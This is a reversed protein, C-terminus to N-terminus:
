GSLVSSAVASAPATSETLYIAVQAVDAREPVRPEQRPHGLHLLGLVREGDDVGLAARGAATRLVGPTRWYGALGRGHAALLVIYAATATALVDEEDLVPDGSSQTASVAVLTPARDLKAAAIPDDAAQKLRELAQPGVVRFRWPNTLKHNPAWRALEFLEDLTDRDLPEPQYAKHTRRTRIAEDLEMLARARSRTPTRTRGRRRGRLAVRPRAGQGQRRLAQLGAHRRPLRRAGAAHLAGHDARVPRGDLDALEATVIAGDAVLPRGWVLTMHAVNGGEGRWSGVVEDCLDLEWDPNAEATDETYDAVADFETPEREETAPRFSVYGFLEFGKSTKATAPVFTRGHWTRDPYFAIEGPDGLDDDGPDIADCAGLFHRELTGAWRGYPLPEQPPEAVFRPVFRPEVPM